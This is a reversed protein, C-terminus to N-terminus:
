FVVCASLMITSCTVALLLLKNCSDKSKSFTHLLKFVMKPSLLAVSHIINISVLLTLRTTYKENGEILFFFCFLVFVCCFYRGVQFLIETPAIPSTLM